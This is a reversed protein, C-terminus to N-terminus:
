ALNSAHNAIFLELDKQQSDSLKLFKGSMRRMKITSKPHGSIATDSIRQFPTKEMYFADQTYLLGLETGNELPTGDIYSFSVGNKSIDIIQGVLTPNSWHIAFARVNVRYRPHQRREIM